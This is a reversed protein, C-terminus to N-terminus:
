IAGAPEKSSTHNPAAALAKESSFFTPPTLAIILKAPVDGINDVKHPVSCDWHFSDGQELIFTQTGYTGRLKGQLVLHCEEGPHSKLPAEKTRDKSVPIELILMEMKSFPMNSVWEVVRDDRAFHTRDRQEPKMIRPIYDRQMFLLAMPVELAQAIREVSNISPSTRNNEINSLFGKSLGAKEALDDLIMSKSLRIARMRSGIDM